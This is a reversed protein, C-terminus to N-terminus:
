FAIVLSLSSLDLSSGSEDQIFEYVAIKMQLM